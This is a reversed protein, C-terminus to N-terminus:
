DESRQAELEDNILAGIELSTGRPVAKPLLTKESGSKMRAVLQWRLSRSRNNSGSRVTIRKVYVSQVDDTVLSVNRWVPLPYHKVRMAEMSISISIRNLAGICATYTVCGAFLLALAKFPVMPAPLNNWHNYVWYDIYVAFPVHALLRWGFWPWIVVLDRDCRNVHLNKM